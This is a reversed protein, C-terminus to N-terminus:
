RPYSSAEQKFRPPPESNSQTNDLICREVISLLPLPHVFLPLHGAEPLSILTVNPKNKVLEKVLSIAWFPDQEGHVLNIDKDCEVFLMRWDSVSLLVDRIHADHGAEIIPRSGIILHELAKPDDVIAADVPSNYFVSQTFKKPGVWRAYQFGAKAFYQLAKPQLCASMLIAKGWKNMGKLTTVLAMPLPMGEFVCERVLEPRQRALHLAFVASVDKAWLLAGEINLCDLWEALVEAVAEAYNAGEEIASSRGYGPRIPTLLRVRRTALAQEMEPSLRYGFVNGHLYVLPLGDKPGSERYVLKRGSSLQLCQLADAAIGAKWAAPLRDDGSLSQESIHCIQTVLCILELQNNVHNKRYISNIQTRVTAPSSGLAEAVQKAGKGQCMLRVIDLERASLSLADRVSQQLQDSWDFRSIRCRLVNRGQWQQVEIGIVVRMPTSDFSLTGHVLAHDQHSKSQLMQRVLKQLREASDLDFALNALSQGKHVGFWTKATQNSELVQMRDVLFVPYGEDRLVVEDSEPEAVLKEAFAMHQLLPSNNHLWTLCDNNELLANWDDVTVEYLSPNEAAQYLSLIVRANNDAEGM